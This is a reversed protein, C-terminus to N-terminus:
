IYISRKFECFVDDMSLVEWVRELQLWTKATGGDSRSMRLLLPLLGAAMVVGPLVERLNLELSLNMLPWWEFDVDDLDLVWLPSSSFMFGGNIILDMKLVGGVMEWSFLVFLLSPKRLNKFCPKLGSLLAPAEFPAVDDPTSAGEVHASDVPLGDRPEGNIGIPGSNDAFALTPPALQFM